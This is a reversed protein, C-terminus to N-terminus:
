RITLSTSLLCASFAEPSITILPHLYSIMIKMINQLSLSDYIYIPVNEIHGIMIAIVQDLLLLTM